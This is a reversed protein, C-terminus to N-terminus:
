KKFFNYTLRVFYSRGTGIPQQTNASTHAGSKVEQRIFTVDLVNKVGASWLIKRKWVSGALNVNLLGYGELNLQSLEGNEPNVTWIAQVGNYKYVANVGFHKFDYRGQFRLEPYYSFKPAGADAEDRQNSLGIYSAAIQGSFKKFRGSVISNVGMTQFEDVNIYTYLTGTTNALTIRDKITNYFGSLELKIFALDKLEKRNLMIMRQVSGIFNHSYEANLDNNGLVNHNVDVFSLYLEKLEPARFGRSYSIRGTFQGKKYRAALMPVVPADYATNYAVRIGPKLLWKSTLKWEASGFLAYDSIVPDGSEDAQSLRIGHGKESRIDYGFQYHLRSNSKFNSYTGRSTLAIFTSTDQDGSGTTLIRDLAVLDNFFKDRRRYFFNYSGIIQVASNKNIEREVFVGQDLRYTHFDEDFATEYYPGLPRGKNLLLEKFGESKLRVSTKGFNRHLQLRSFYQEKPKWQQWRGYDKDSWGGFFYRGGSVRLDTKKIKFNLAGDFNYNGASEYYGTVNAWSQDSGKKTILNIVGALANSGYSVSMPGEVVEIREIDNLNLQSLDINGDLRGIVPVGDILVKVNNGSVGMLSLVTGTSNDQSIRVNLQNQLVDRLNNAAIQDIEKRDIVQVKEIAQAATKKTYQVTIITEELEEPNATLVYKVSQGVPVKRDPTLSHYGVKSIQRVIVYNKEIAAKINLVGQEDTLDFRTQGSSLSYTIEAYQVPINSTDLVKVSIQGFVDTASCFWFLLILLGSFPSGGLVRKTRIDFYKASFSNLM